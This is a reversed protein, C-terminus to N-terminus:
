IWKSDIIGNLIYKAIVLGASSPVMM